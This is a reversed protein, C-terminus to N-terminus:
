FGLITMVEDSLKGQFSSVDIMSNIPYNGNALFVIIINKLKDGWVYSGSSDALGFSNPSASFKTGCPPDKDPVTEWGFAKTNKYSKFKKVTLFEEIVEQSFLLTKKGPVKGKNLMMQMYKVLDGPTSFLGANGAGSGL